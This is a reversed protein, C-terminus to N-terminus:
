YKLVFKSFVLFLLSVKSKILLKSLLFCFFQCCNILLKFVSLSIMVPSSFMNFAKLLKKTSIPGFNAAFWHLSLTWQLRDQM